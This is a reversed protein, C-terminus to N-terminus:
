GNLDIIIEVRRNMARNEKNTNPVIPDAEGKGIITIKNKDIKAFDISELFNAVAQARKYSLKLNYKEDGIDDTYGVLILRSNPYKPEIKCKYIFLFKRLLSKASATLNYSDFKFLIKNKLIIKVGSNTVETVAMDKPFFEDFMSKIEKKGFTTIVTKNKEICSSFFLVILPLVIALSANRVYSNIRLKVKM